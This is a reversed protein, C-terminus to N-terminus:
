LNFHKIQNKDLENDCNSCHYSTNSNVFKGEKNSYTLKAKDIIGTTTLNSGCSNCNQITCLNNLKNPTTGNLISKCNNCTVSSLTDSYTSIIKNSEQSFEYTIEETTIFGSLFINSKCNSCIYTPIYSENIHNRKSDSKSVDKNNSHFIGTIYNIIDTNNQTCVSLLHDKISNFANNKSPSNLDILNNEIAHKVIIPYNYKIAFFLVMEDFKNDSMKDSFDIWLDPSELYLNKSLKEISEELENKNITNTISM